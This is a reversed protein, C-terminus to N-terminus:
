QPFFSSLKSTEAMKLTAANIKVRAAFLGWPHRALLECIHGGAFSWQSHLMCICGVWVAVFGNNEFGENYGGQTIHARAM